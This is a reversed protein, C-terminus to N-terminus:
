HILAYMLAFVHLCPSLPVPAFAVPHTGGCSLLYARVCVCVFMCVCVCVFFIRAYLYNCVKHKQALEVFPCLLDYGFVNIDPFSLAFFSSEIGINSGMVVVDLGIHM